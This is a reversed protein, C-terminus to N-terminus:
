KQFKRGTLDPLEQDEVKRTLADTEKNSAGM